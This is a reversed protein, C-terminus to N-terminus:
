KARISTVLAVLDPNAGRWSAPTARSWLAQVYSSDTFVEGTASTLAWLVAHISALVEARDVDKTDIVAGSFTKCNDGSQLLVGYTADAGPFQSGDCFARAYGANQQHPLAGTALYALIPLLEGKDTLAARLPAALTPSVWKKWIDESASYLRTGRGDLCDVEVLGLRGKRALQLGHPLEWRKPIFVTRFTDKVRLALATRAEPTAFASRTLPDNSLAGNYMCADLKTAAVENVLSYLGMGGEACPLHLYKPTEGGRLGLKLNVVGALLKDWRKLDDLPAEAALLKAKVSPVIVKNIIRATQAAPLCKRRLLQAHYQLKSNVAQIQADWSLNVNILTGLYKYSNDGRLIPIEYSVTPHPPDNVQLTLRDLLPCNTMAATKSKGSLDIGLEFKAQHLLKTLRLADRRFEELSHSVLSLDDVYGLLKATLRAHRIIPDLVLNLITPSLPCGQKVGISILFELTRADGELLIQAFNDRYIRALFARVKPPFGMAELTREILSHNVRDFCKKIDVFLIYTNLGQANAKRILEQLMLIKDVCGRGKRFGGQEDALIDNKELLANIRATLMKMLVRYAADSISVPRYNGCELKDGSKHILKIIASSWEQPVDHLSFAENVCNLLMQKGVQGLHKLCETPLDLAAKGDKSLALASELEAYSFPAEMAAANTDWHFKEKYIGETGALWPIDQWQPLQEGGAYIKSWYTRLVEELEHGQAVRTGSPTHVKLATICDASKAKDPNAKQFFLRPNTIESELIREVYGNIRERKEKQILARLTKGMTKKKKKIESYWGDTDRAPYAGSVEAAKLMHRSPPDHHLHREILSRNIHKLGRAVNEAEPSLAPAERPPEAVRLGVSRESTVAAWMIERLQPWTPATELKSCLSESVQTYTERRALLKFGSQNVRPAKPPPPPQEPPPSVQGLSIQIPCHDSAWSLFPLITCTKIPRQEIATTHDQLVADIRSAQQSGNRCSRLFTYERTNPNQLRWVDNLIAGRLIDSYAALESTRTDIRARDLSPNSVVNLDGMLTVRNGDAQLDEAFEGVRSWFTQKAAHPGHVGWIVHKVNNITTHITLCCHGQVTLKKVKYSTRELLNNNVLLVEGRAFRAPGVASTRQAPVYYM